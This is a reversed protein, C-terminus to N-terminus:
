IYHSIISSVLLFANIIIATTAIIIRNSQTSMDLLNCLLMGGEGEGVGEGVVVGDGVGGEGEGVGEGVVVGDGVGGEGEGVGEEGICTVDKTIASPHVPAYQQALTVKLELIVPINVNIFV